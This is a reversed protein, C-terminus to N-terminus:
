DHYQQETQVTSFISDLWDILGDILEGVDIDIDIDPLDIGDDSDEEPIEAGDDDPTEAGDDDDSVGDDEETQDDDEEPPPSSDPDDGITISSSDMGPGNVREVTIEGDLEDDPIWTFVVGDVTESADLSVSQSEVVGGSDNYLTINGESPHGAENTVRATVVTEESPDGVDFNTIEIDYFAPGITVPGGSEDTPSHVSVWVGPEDESEVTYTFTETKTGGAELAHDTSTWTDGDVDLRVSREGALDGVNEVKYTVSVVEGEHSREEVTVDFEAPSVTVTDETLTEETIATANLVTKQEGDIGTTFTVTTSTDPDLSVSEVAEERGDVEFEVEQEGSADGTNEVKYVFEANENEITVSDKSVSFRPAGPDEITITTFQSVEEGWAKIEHSGIDDPTTESEFTVQTSEGPDLDVEDYIEEDHWDVVLDIWQEGTEDGINELYFTTEFTEGAEIPANHEVIEVDFFTGSPEILVEDTDDPVGYEAGFEAESTGVMVDYRGEDGEWTTGEFTVTTSEGPALEVEKIFVGDELEYEMHVYAEGWAGGNNEVQVDFLLTEGGRVPDNIGVLEAEFSPEGSTDYVEVPSSRSMDESAVDATYSGVDNSSTSLTIQETTSEGPDLAVTTTSTGVSGITLTVDQSDVEDGVNEVTTEVQLTDGAAVPENTDDISVDFHGSEPPDIVEVEQSAKIGSYDDENWDYTDFEEGDYSPVACVHHTGPDLDAPAVTSLSVTNASFSDPADITTSGLLKERDSVECSKPDSTTYLEFDITDPDDSTGINRITQEVTLETEGPIVGQAPSIDLWSGDGPVFDLSEWVYEPNNALSHDYERQEDEVIWDHLHDDKTSTIRPGYTTDARVPFSRSVANVGLIDYEEKNANYHYLASGSQGPSSVVEAEFTGFSDTIIGADGRAPGSDFHMQPNEAETGTPYGHTIIFSDDYIPDDVNYSSWPLTTVSHPEGLPRDLTLLAMDHSIEGDDVVEGYTRAHTVEAKSFHERIQGDDFDPAVRVFMASNFEHFDISVTPDFEIEADGICHAATLVHRDDVLTGTCIHEDEEGTTDSAPWFLQVTSQYPSHDHDWPENVTTRPDDDLITSPVPEGDGDTLYEATDETNSISNTEKETLEGSISVSNETEYEDIIENEEFSYVIVTASENGESAAGVDNTSGVDVAGASGVSLVIFICIAGVMLLSTHNAVRNTSISIM